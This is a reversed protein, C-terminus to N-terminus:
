ERPFPMEPVPEGTGISFIKRLIGPTIAALPNVGIKPDDLAGTMAYTAAFVGSGKEGTLITGIIPLKGLLSNLTYAPVITGDLAITRQGLDIRGHATMGVDSGVARSDDITIVSDRFKFPVELRSFTSGKLVKGSEDTIQTETFLQALAPADVVTFNEM